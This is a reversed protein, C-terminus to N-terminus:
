SLWIQNLEKRKELFVPNNRSPHIRNTLLIMGEASNLDLLISTGTFGTHYLTKDGYERSWGYTRGFQETNQILRFTEKSFLRDSETLYAQVFVALDELTSFLGASGSQGLLWAKSDHIEGCILGRKETMETPICLEAQKPVPFSTHNMNLPAFVHRQFSEKLSEPKKLGIGQQIILGLLIYGVDSYIFQTGPECEPATRYLRDFINGRTLQHKNAIEAPLGSCHLLLHGVTIDNWSFRPLLQSVPTDLSIEGEEVLQLIRSTTGVVKSLSALDYFLGQRVPRRNYPATSGMVGYYSFDAREREVFALSYGWIVQSKVMSDLEQKITQKASAKQNM